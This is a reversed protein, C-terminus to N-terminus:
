AASLLENCRRSSIGFWEAISAVLLSEEEAVRGDAMAVAAALSFATERDLRDRCITNGIAQLRAEAGEQSALAAFDALMQDLHENSVMGDTLLELAGQIAAREDEGIEGDVAMMLYMVEALPAVRQMAALHRDDQPRAADGQVAVLRGGKVLADRLRRIKGTDINM